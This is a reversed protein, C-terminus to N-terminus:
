RRDIKKILSIISRDLDIPSGKKRGKIKRCRDCINRGYKLKTFYMDGCRKCLRLRRIFGLVM